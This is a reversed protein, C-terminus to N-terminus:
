WFTAEYLANGYTILAVVNAVAPANEYEPLETEIAADM